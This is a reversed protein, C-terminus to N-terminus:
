DKKLQETGQELAWWSFWGGSRGGASAAGCGEDLERGWRGSGKATRRSWVVSSLLSKVFYGLRGETTERMRRAVSGGASAGVVV